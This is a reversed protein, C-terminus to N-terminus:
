YFFIVLFNSIRKKKKKVQIVEERKTKIKEFNLKIIISLVYNRVYFLIFNM